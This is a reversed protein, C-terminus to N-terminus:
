LDKIPCDLFNGNTKSCFQWESQTILGTSKKLLNDLIGSTAQHTQKM